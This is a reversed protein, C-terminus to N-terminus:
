TLLRTNLDEASLYLMFINLNSNSTTHLGVPLRAYVESYYSEPPLEFKWERCTRRVWVRFLQDFIQTDDHVHM